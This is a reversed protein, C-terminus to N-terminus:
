VSCLVVDLAGAIAAASAALSAVPLRLLRSEVAAAQHAYLVLVEDGVTLEPALRRPLTQGVSERRLLPATLRTNLGDLLGSQLDVVYPVLTRSAPSPNVYVDYQAM